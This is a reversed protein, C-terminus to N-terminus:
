TTPLLKHSEVKSDNNYRGQYLSTPTDHLWHFIIQAIAKGLYLSYPTFSWNILEMTLVSNSFGPDIWGANLHQIFDRATSSRLALQGCVRSPINFEELSAVLLREGPQFLYPKEETFFSFDIDEFSAREPNFNEDNPTLLRKATEGIRIDLSAPQVLVQLPIEKNGEDKGTKLLNPDFPSVMPPNQSSLAIIECDTLVTM